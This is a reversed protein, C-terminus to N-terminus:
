TMGLRKYGDPQSLIDAVQEPTLSELESKSLRRGNAPQPKAGNGTPPASESFLEPHAAKFENVAAAKIEEIEKESVVRLGQPPRQLAARQATDWIFDDLSIPDLSRIQRQVEATFPLGLVKFTEEVRKRRFETQPEVLAEEATRAFDLLPGQIRLRLAEQQAETLSDGDLALESLLRKIGDEIGSAARPLAQELDRLRMRYQEDARAQAEQADRRSQEYRQVLLLERTSLQVDEGANARQLKALVEELTPEAPPPPPSTEVEPEQSAEPTEGASAEVELAAAPAADNLSEQADESALTDQVETTVTESVVFFAGIHGATELAM